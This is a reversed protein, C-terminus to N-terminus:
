KRTQSLWVHSLLFQPLIGFCFDIEDRIFQFFPSSSVFVPQMCHSAVVESQYVVETNEEVKETEPNETETEKVPVEVPQAEGNDDIVKVESLDFEEDM